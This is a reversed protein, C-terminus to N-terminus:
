SRALFQKLIFEFTKANLAGQVRIGNFFFTPTGEVGARLGDASEAQIRDAYRKERVCADFSPVSLGAEQAYRRLDGDEQHDQNSFLKDHYPWYLGQEQACRGALAAATARPHLEDVPFDRAIFYVRDKYKQMVERVALFADYSYPCGFDLFEVVVVKAAPNGLAPASPPQLRTLDEETVHANALQSSISAQLRQDLLPNTEGSRIAKYYRVFTFLFWGVLAVFFGVIMWQVIKWGSVRAFLRFPM